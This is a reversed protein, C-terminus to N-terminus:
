MQFIFPKPLGITWAWYIVIWWLSAKLMNGSATLRMAHDSVLRRMIDLHRLQRRTDPSLMRSVCVIAEMMEGLIAKRAKLAVEFVAGQALRLAWSGRAWGAKRRKKADVSSCGRSRRPEVPIAVNPIYTFV